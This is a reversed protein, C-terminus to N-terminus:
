ENKENVEMPSIKVHVKRESFNIDAVYDQGVAKWHTYTEDCWSLEAKPPKASLDDVIPSLAKNSKSAIRLLDLAVNCHKQEYVKEEKEEVLGNLLTWVSSM